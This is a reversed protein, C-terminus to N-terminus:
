DSGSRAFTMRLLCVAGAKFAAAAIALYRLYNDTTAEGVLAVAEARRAALNRSWTRCTKLYDARDNRLAVLEFLPESAELIESPHPLESEHFITAPVFPEGPNGPHLYAITQLSLRRSARLNRHCFEFFRRYAAVKERRTM